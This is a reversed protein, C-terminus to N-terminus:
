QQKLLKTYLSTLQNAIQTNDLGLELLREKGKTKGYNISTELLQALENPDVSSAVYCGDVGKLREKVDGVDVSVIPCGCAMAEKIVQPSGERISTLLLSKCMHMLTVVEDRTYGRLELLEVMANPHFGNYIEIAQKALSANKVISDFSGAFLVKNQIPYRSNFWDTDIKSKDFDNINVGCPIISWNNYKRGNKETGYANLMQRNGVFINWTALRMALQSFPRNKIDNIDCGHYTVVVPIRMGLTALVVALGTLGFHAHIIDPLEKHIAKRIHKIEKLYNLIGHANHSYTHIEAGVHKLSQIQEEIFPSFRGGKDSAIILIKM